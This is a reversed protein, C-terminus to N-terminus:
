RLNIFKVLLQLSNQMRMTSKFSRLKQHMVYTQILLMIFRM